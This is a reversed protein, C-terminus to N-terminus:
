CVRMSFGGQKNWMFRQCKKLCCIKKKKKITHRLLTKGLELAIEAISLSMIEWGAQTHIFDEGAKLTFDARPLRAASNVVLCGLM